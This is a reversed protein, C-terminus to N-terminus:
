QKSLLLKQPKGGRQRKPSANRTRLTSITKDNHKAGKKIKECNNATTRTKTKQNTKGNTATSHHDIRWGDPRTM